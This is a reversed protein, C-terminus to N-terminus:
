KTITIAQGGLQEWGAIFPKKRLKRNKSHLPDNVYVSDKDYGTVLVSHMNYTIKLPGSSTKWTQWEGEPVVDYTSTVIVWVPRKQDLHAIVESFDKGTFDVVKGPVYAEALNKIPGHYVGIGPKGMTRMNGVFGDNLNGRVGNEEFPVKAVKNALTMKDVSVGAHNLLMALSTVECGRPLEPKQKIFPADILIKQERNKETTPSANNETKNEVQVISSKNEKGKKGEQIKVNEEKSSELRIKPQEDISRDSKSSQATPDTGCGAMLILTLTWKLPTTKSWRLPISLMKKSRM